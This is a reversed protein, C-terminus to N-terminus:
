CARWDHYPGTQGFNSISTIVLAPNVSHRLQETFGLGLRDMTGPAFNEVLIDAKEALDLAVRRGEEARLDLDSAASPPM